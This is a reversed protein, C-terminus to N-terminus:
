GGVALLWGRVSERTIDLLPQPFFGFVIIPAGLLAAAWIERPLLDQAQAVDIRVAPGFFCKRFLGLFFAGAFVMGALAAIGAGTHTQITAILVLWEGPFGLTGPVGLGALGCLLFFTTLRPMTRFVGGLNQMDCSGTRAQLFSAAIFGGGTAFVLSVTLLLAGQVGPVTASAIGVMAWIFAGM